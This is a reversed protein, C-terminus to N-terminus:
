IIISFRELFNRSAIDLKKATVCLRGETKAALLRKQTLRISFKNKCRFLGKANAFILLEKKTMPQTM